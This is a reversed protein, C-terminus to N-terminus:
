FHLGTHLGFWFNDVTDYEDNVFQSDRIANDVLMSFAATGGIYFYDTIDYQLIIQATADTVTARDIEFYDQNYNPFGYGCSLDIDAKLRDVLQFARCLGAKLYAGHTQNFDYYGTVYPTVWDNEYRVGLFGEYLDDTHDPPLSYYTGGLEVNVGGISKGWAISYDSESLGGMKAPRPEGIPYLFVTELSLSGFTKHEYAIRASPQFIPHDYGVMGNWIDLSYFSFLLEYSLSPEPDETQLPHHPLHQDTHDEKAWNTQASLLAMILLAVKVGKASQTLSRYAYGAIFGGFAGALLFVFLLLDGQDTNILPERAPRGAAEAYKEVVTEDV